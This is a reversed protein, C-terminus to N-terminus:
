NGADERARKSSASDPAATPLLVTFLPPAPRTLRLRGGEAEALSRALALGIGHGAADPSRRAFMASEPNTIGSGEDSVDIALADAADRAAVTVTGAGHVVANDVLVGLVQRIAGISAIATPVQPAVTLVLARGDTALRARWTRDLDDFLAELDLPGAKSGRGDRALALLEEITQELRDAAGIGTHLAARVDHNPDALAAELQLRLGALPTRLQHSANASFARERALMDDLRVATNDLAEGVADIEPIQTRPSRVSFDGDGLRRATGALDELPRSLRQALRNAVLWVLGIVVATLALMALGILGVSKYVEGRPTSARVAGVIDTEHTVPVTVVIWSDFDRLRATSVKGDLADSVYVDGDRPGNGAVRDGDEDYVAIFTQHGHARPEPVPNDRLLDAASDVAADDADQRLEAERQSFVYQGVAALLPVEFLGVALVAALVALGVIRRRM